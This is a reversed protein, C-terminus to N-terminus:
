LHSVPFRKLLADPNALYERIRASVAHPDRKQDDGYLSPSFLIESMLEHGETYGDLGFFEEAAEYGMLGKFSPWFNRMDMKLGARKFPLLTCAWGFACATAGCKNMEESTIGTGLNGKIDTRILDDNDLESVWNRLSFVQAPLEDLFDALVTLRRRSVASVKIKEM